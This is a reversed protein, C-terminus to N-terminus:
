TSRKKMMSLCNTGNGTKYTMNDMITKIIPLGRGEESISAIDDPVFDLLADCADEVLNKDMSKGSDCVDCVIRDNYITLSIEISNGEQGGYAHKISNTVAEVVCLEIMNSDIDSFPVLSCLKSTIFGVLFVNHLESTIVLKIKKPQM